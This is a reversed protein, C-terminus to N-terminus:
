KIHEKFWKKIVRKAMKIGQWHNCEGHEQWHKDLADIIEKEVKDWDIGQDRFEYMSQLATMFSITLEKQMKPQKIETPCQGREYRRCINQGNGSFPTFCINILKKCNYDRVFYEKGKYKMETSKFNEFM